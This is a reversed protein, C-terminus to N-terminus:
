EKEKIITLIRAVQKKVRNLSKINKLQNANVNFRYERLKERQEQLMRTLEKKDKNRLEKIESKKM